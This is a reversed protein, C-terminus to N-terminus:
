LCCQFTYAIMCSRHGSCIRLVLRWQIRVDAQNAVGGIGGGRDRGNCVDKFLNIFRDLQDLVAVDNRLDILSCLDITSAVRLRVVLHSIQDIEIRSIKM